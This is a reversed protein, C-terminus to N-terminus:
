ENDMYGMMRQIVQQREEEKGAEKMLIGYQMIKAAVTPYQDSPFNKFVFEIIENELKECVKSM